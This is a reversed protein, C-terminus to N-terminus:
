KQVKKLAFGHNSPQKLNRIRVVYERKDRLDVVLKEVKKIKM